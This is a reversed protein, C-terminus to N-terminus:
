AKPANGGTSMLAKANAYPDGQQKNGLIKKHQELHSVLAQKIKAYGEPDTEKM